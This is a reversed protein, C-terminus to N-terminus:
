IQCKSYIRCDFIATSLSSCYNQRNFSAKTAVNRQQLLILQLLIM